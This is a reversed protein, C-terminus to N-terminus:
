ATASRSIVGAGDSGPTYPLEPLRAYKGSRIYAEYRILAPRTCASSWRVPAPKPDAVDVLRLEEPGGFQEVVIARM